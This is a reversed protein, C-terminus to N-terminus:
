PPPAVRNPPSPFPFPFFLTGLLDSALPILIPLPFFPQRILAHNLLQPSFPRGGTPPAPPPSLFLPYRAFLVSGLRFLTIDWFFDSFFIPRTESKDPSALVHRRRHTTLGWFDPLLAARAMQLSLTLFFLLGTQPLLVPVVGLFPPLELPFLFSTPLCRDWSRFPALPTGWIKFHPRFTAALFVKHGVSFSTASPFFSLVLPLVIRSLGM